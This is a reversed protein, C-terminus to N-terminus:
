EQRRDNAKQDRNIKVKLDDFWARTQSRTNDTDVMVAFASVHDPDKKFYRKYDEIFDREERVWKGANRNGSQLVIQGVSDSYPNKYISGPSEQGAWIYCISRTRWNFFHTEFVVFVRAAYDDGKKERERHNQTLSTKVKWRWTIKGSEVAKVKWERWFGSASNESVMELVHDTGENIIRDRNAHDALVRKKWYLNWKPAFDGLVLWDSNSGNQAFCFSELIFFLIVSLVIPPYTFNYLRKM